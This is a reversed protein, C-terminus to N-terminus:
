EVKVYSKKNHVSVDTTEMWRTGGRFVLVFYSNGDTSAAVLLM